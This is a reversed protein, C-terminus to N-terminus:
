DSLKKDRRHAQIGRHLLLRVLAALSLRTEQQLRRLYAADDNMVPVSVRRRRRGQPGDTTMPGTDHIVRKGRRIRGRAVRHRM